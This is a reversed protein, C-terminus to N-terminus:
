NGLAKLSSPTYDPRWDEFGATSEVADALQKIRDPIVDQFWRYYDRLEKKPMDSFKLRLPPQITNYLKLGAM